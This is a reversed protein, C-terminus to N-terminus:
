NKWNWKNIHLYWYVRIITGSSEINSNYNIHKNTGWGLNKTINKQNKKKKVIRWHQFAVGRGGQIITNPPPAKSLHILDYPDHDFGMFPIQAM